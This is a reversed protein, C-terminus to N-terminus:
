FKLNLFKLADIKKDTENPKIPNQPPQLVQIIKKPKTKPKSPKKMNLLESQQKIMERLERIQTEYDNGVEKKKSSKLKGKQIIIEEESESAESDSTEYEYEVKPRSYLKELKSKRAKKANEKSALSRKDPEGNKKLRPTM